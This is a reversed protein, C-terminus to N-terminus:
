RVEQASSKKSLSFVFCFNLLTLTSDSSLAESWKAFSYECFDRSTLELPWLCLSIRLPKRGSVRRITNTWFFRRFQFWKKRQASLRRCWPVFIYVFFEQKSNAPAVLTCLSLSVIASSKCCKCIFHCYIFSDWCPHNRIVFLCVPM